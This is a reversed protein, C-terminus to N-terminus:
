IDDNVNSQLQSFYFEFSELKIQLDNITIHVSFLLRLHGNVNLKVNRENCCISRHIIHLFFFFFLIRAFHCFFIYTNQM